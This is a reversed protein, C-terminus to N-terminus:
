KFRYELYAIMLGLPGSVDSGTLIYSVFGVVVGFVLSKLIKALKKDM